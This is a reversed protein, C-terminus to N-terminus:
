KVALTFDLTLVLADDTAHPFVARGSASTLMTVVVASLVIVVLTAMFFDPLNETFKFDRVKPNM